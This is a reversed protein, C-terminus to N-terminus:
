GGSIHPTKQYSGKLNSISSKTKQSHKAESGIWRCGITMDSSRCNKQWPTWHTDRHCGIVITDSYGIFM